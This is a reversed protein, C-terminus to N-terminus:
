LELVSRLWQLYRDRLFQWAEITFSHGEHPLLLCEHRVGASALADCLAQSQAPPVIDDNEGHAIFMPASASTVHSLPSALRWREPCEAFGCGIFQELFEMAIAYHTSEPEVLNTIPCLAVAANAQVAASPPLDTPATDEVTLPETLLATMAALHGGASNGVVAIRDPQIGLEEHRGRLHAILTQVDWVAAPFPHLPALRYEPCCCAFGQACGWAAEERYMTKDGSIRGGGHIFVLLPLLREADPRFFDFRLPIGEYCAYEENPRVIVPGM